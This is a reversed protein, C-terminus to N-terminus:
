RLYASFEDPVNEAGFNERFEKFSPIIYTGSGDCLTEGSEPEILRGEMRALRKSIKVPETELLLPIGTEVARVFRVDMKGTFSTKGAFHMVGWVMIEDLLMAQFGGHLIGPWGAMGEKIPPVESVVANKDPDFFFKLRFGWEHSQGCCFCNCDELTAWANEVPTWNERM